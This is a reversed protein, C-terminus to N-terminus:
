REPLIKKFFASRYTQGIPITKDNIKITNGEIHESKNSAIAFSKHERVLKSNGLQSLLNQFTDHIVISINSYHVKVYDGHAEIYNIDNVNVRYLKKDSKLLIFNSESEAKVEKM